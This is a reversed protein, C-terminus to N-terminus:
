AGATVNFTARAAIGASFSQLVPACRDLAVKGEFLCSDIQGLTRGIDGTDAGLASALAAGDRMLGTLEGAARVAERIDEAPLSSACAGLAEALGSSLGGARGFLGALRDTGGLALAVVEFPSGANAVDRALGVVNAVDNVIGRAQQACSVATRMTDWMGGALPAALSLLSTSGPYVSLSPAGDANYDFRFNFHYIMEGEHYLYLSLFGEKRQGTDFILRAELPLSADPSKWLTYGKGWYLEHIVEDSFMTRLITFHHLLADLRQRMTSNKFLFVRTMVEQFDPDQRDFFGKMPEYADFFSYLEEFLSRNTVARAFFVVARKNEQFNRPGYITRSLRWFYSISHM